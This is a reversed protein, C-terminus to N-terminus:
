SGASRSSRAASPLGFRGPRGDAPRALALGALMFIGLTVAPMQWDWDVAQHIAWALTLAFLAAYLPRGPGRIRTALGALMGIVVVLILM